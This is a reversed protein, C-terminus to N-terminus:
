NYCVVPYGKDTEEYIIKAAELPLNVCGHSGSTRFIDGGFESRWSADHLGIGGNFAMWYTVPSSYGPGNLVAPSQRYYISYVGGPTQRDTGYTGTVCDTELLQKGNKYLWVKQNVLDVEVYSDGIDTEENLSKGEHDWVPNITKRTYTKSTEEILAATKSVNLKWGYNGQYLTITNGYSTTFRKPQGQTDYKAALREAYSTLFEPDLVYQHDETETTHALFDEATLIEYESGFKLAIRLSSFKGDESYPNVLDTDANAEESIWAESVMWKQSLDGSFRELSIPAGSYATHEQATLFTGLRSQIYFFGDGADKIVWSQSDPLGTEDERDATEASVSADDFGDEATFAKGSTLTTIRFYVDNLRELYFKQQNVDLSRYLQLTNDESENVTCHRLDLVYDPNVASAIEYIGQQVPEMEPVTNRGDALVSSLPFVCLLFTMVITAAFKKM